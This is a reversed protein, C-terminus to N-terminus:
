RGVGVPAAALQRDVEALIRVVGLGTHGDTRPRAGTRICNLFHRLEAKLPEAERYPVVTEGASRIQFADGHRDFGKDFLKLKGQALAEDGYWLKGEPWTDSFIAMKKSGVVVTQHQKEPHLWSVHIHASFREFRLDCHVTDHIGPQLIASGHASVAQPDGGALGLVFAIDHPAFSWFVNEHSRLKGLDLRRCEVHVIDGLTGDAVLGMLAEAAPNYQQIHGVMLVRDLKEALAVLAESENVALTLPKEVMVHKGAKLAQEALAHHTQAPTAIAVAEIAPDALIGPFDTTTPMPGFRETIGTLRREDLDCVVALAGLEKFNRILNPGWYGAGVVAVQPQAQSM